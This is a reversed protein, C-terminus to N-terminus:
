CGTHLLEFLRWNLSNTNIQFSFYAHSLQSTGNPLAFHSKRWLSSLPRNGQNSKEEKRKQIYYLISLPLSLFSLLQLCFHASESELHGSLGDHFGPTLLEIWNEWTSTIICSRSFDGPVELSYVALFGSHPVLGPIWGLRRSLPHHSTSTKLM